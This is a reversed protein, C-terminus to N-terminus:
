DTEKKLAKGIPSKYRDKMKEITKDKGFHKVGEQYQMKKYRKEFQPNDVLKQLHAPLM